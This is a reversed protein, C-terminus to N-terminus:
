SIFICGFVIGAFIGAQLLRNCCCSVVGAQVARNTRVQKDGGSIGTPLSSILSM